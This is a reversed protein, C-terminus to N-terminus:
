MLLTVIFKDLKGIKRVSSPEVDDKPNLLIIPSKTFVKADNGDIVANYGSSRLIDFFKSVEPNKIDTLDRMFRLYWGSDVDKRGTAKMYAEATFKESPIKITNKAKLVHKYANKGDDSIIGQTGWERIFTPMTVTYLHNDKKLYSAYIREGEKSYDEISKSSIRQLKSGAKLVTDNRPLKDIDIKTGFSFTQAHVPINNKKHIYMAGIVSLAAVTATAGIAIVKKQKDTLGKKKTSQTDDPNDSSHSYRERGVKTLTGDKTQYRRVGWKMGKIGYHYLENTYNYSWM